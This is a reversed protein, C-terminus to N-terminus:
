SQTIHIYAAKREKELWKGVAKQFKIQYVMNQLEAKSPMNERPTKVAVLKIVHFGNPAQIPGAIEGSKMQKLRDLFLTPLTDITQWGLDATDNEDPNKGKKWLSTITMAKQKAKEILDKKDTDVPILVDLVHYKTAHALQSKYKDLYTQMDQESVNVTHGVAGMQVQHILMQKRLASQYDSFSIGEASLKAKLESLTIHNASVVHAIAKNLQDTSITINARKAMALQLKEDILQKLLMEKLQSDTVHSAQEPTMQKKARAIANNLESQTIVDDNVVAAIGDLNQVASIPTPLNTQAFTTPLFFSSLIAPLLLQFTYKKFRM